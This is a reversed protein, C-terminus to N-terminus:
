NKNEKIAEYLKTDYETLQGLLDEEKSSINPYTSNSVKNKHLNFFNTMDIILRFNKKFEKLKEKMNDIFFIFDLKKLNELSDLFHDNNIVISKDGYIIASSFFRVYYNDLGQSLRERLFKELSMFKNGNKEFDNKNRYYNSLYRNKPDRISTFYFHNKKVGERFAFEYPFHGFILFFKNWEKSTFNFSQYDEYHNIKYNRLGFNIKFFYDITNGGSQAPHIFIFKDFKKKSFHYNPYVFATYLQHIINKHM